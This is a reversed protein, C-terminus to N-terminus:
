SKPTLSDLTVSYTEQYQIGKQTASVTGSEKMLLPTATGIWYDQTSKGAEPGSVTTVLQVHLVRVSTGGVTVTEYGIVHGAQTATGDASKCQYNWVHGAKVGPQYLFADQGCTFNESSNIGLFGITQDDTSIRITKADDCLVQSQTHESVPQWTSKVCGGAATNTFTTTSPYTRKTGPFSTQEYGTTAYSFTGLVGPPISTTTHQGSSQSPTASAAISPAASATPSIVVGSQSPV